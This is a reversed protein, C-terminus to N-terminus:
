CWSMTMTFRPGNFPASSALVVVTELTEVFFDAIYPDAAALIREHSTGSALSRFAM